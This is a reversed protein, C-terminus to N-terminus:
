RCAFNCLFRILPQPQVIFLRLPSSAFRTLTSVSIAPCRKFVGQLVVVLCDFQGRMSVDCVKSGVDDVQDQQEHCIKMM